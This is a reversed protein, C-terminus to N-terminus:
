IDIDNRNKAIIFATLNPHGDQIDQEIIELHYIKACQASAIVAISSALKGISLDHAAKATDIWEVLEANKFTNKLYQKCQLLAQSHSIIKKIDTIRTGPKVLLCQDVQLWLEDIPTFLYEGMAEFAPKVLGGVLNAVPFIGINIKKDQVAQLVGKMDLLYIISYQLGIKQMYFLAAEESFSGAEGSVGITKIKKMTIESKRKTDLTIIWLSWLQCPM